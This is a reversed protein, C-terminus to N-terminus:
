RSLEEWLGYLYTVGLTAIAYVRYAQGASFGEETGSLGAWWGYRIM